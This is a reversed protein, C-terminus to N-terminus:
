EQAGGPDGWVGTVVLIGLEWLLKCGAGSTKGGGGHWVGL